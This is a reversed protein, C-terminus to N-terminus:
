YFYGFKRVIQYSGFMSIDFVINVQFDEACGDMRFNENGETKQIHMEILDMSRYTLEDNGTFLLLLELYQKYSMGETNKESEKTHFIVSLGSDLDTHWHSKSKFFPVCGGEFLIEVDRVSEAYSWLGIISLKIVPAIEPALVLLSLLGAVGDILFMKETDTMLYAANAAERLLLLKGAVKSLNEYDNNKGGILYEIEYDMSNTESMKPYYSFKDFAYGIFYIKDMFALEDNTGTGEIRSRKSVYNNLNVQKKSVETEKKIVQSLVFSKRINKTESVPCYKDIEKWTKEPIDQKQAMTKQWKEDWIDQSEGEENLYGEKLVSEYQSKLEEVYSLGVKDKMFDSIQKRFPVGNNDTALTIRCIQVSSLMRKCNEEIYEWLHSEVNHYNPNGTKYSTDVYFLDFEELLEKHYESLVANQAVMYACEAKLRMANIKIGEFISLVFSVLVMFIMAFYITIYGKKM